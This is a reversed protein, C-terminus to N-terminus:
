NCRVIRCPPNGQRQCAALANNTAEPISLGSGNFMGGLRGQATCTVPRRGPRVAAISDEAHATTAMGAILTALVIVFKM